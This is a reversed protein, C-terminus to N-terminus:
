SSSINDRNIFICIIGYTCSGVLGVTEKKSVVSIGEKCTVLYQLVFIKDCEFTATGGQVNFYRSIDSVVNAPFVGTLIKEGATNEVLKPARSSDGPNVAATTVTIQEEEGGVEILRKQGEILEVYATNVKDQVASSQSNTAVAFNLARQYNAWSEATYDAQAYGKANAESIARALQTKVTPVSLLRGYYLQLRHQRYAVDLAAPKPIVGTEEDPTTYEDIFRSTARSEDRYNSWTYAKYNASGFFSYNPDDYELDENSPEISNLYAELSAVGGTATAELNEVAEELAAATPEFKAANCRAAASATASNIFSAALFRTQVLAAADNMATLYAAFASADYDSAQRQASIESHFLKTLGYDKYLSITTVVTPLNTSGVKAAVTQQYKQFGYGSTGFAEEIQEDSGTYGDFVYPKFTTTGDAVLNITDPNVKVFSLDTLPKYSVTANGTSTVTMAANEYTTNNIRFALNDLDDPNTTFINVNGDRYRYNGSTGATVQKNADTDTSSICTYLRATLPSSTLEEGTETLVNYTVTVVTNMANSVRGTIKVTVSEGGSLTRVTPTSVTFKDSTISEIRIAYRSDKHLVGNADTYATNVGSSRNTIKFDVNATSQYYFDDLEFSPTKFKQETTLGLASCVIPVVAPVLTARYNYLDAFLNGVMDGLTNKTILQEFTTLGTPLFGPFVLNITRAILSLLVTKPANNLESGAPENGLLNFIPTFNLELVNGVIVDKVLSEFTVAGPFQSADFWSYNDLIVKLLKDINNWVRDNKNLTIGSVLGGWKDIVWALAQKGLEDVGIGYSLGLGPNDNLAKVGFDALINYITDVSDVPYASESSYDREPIIVAMMDKITYNAVKTLTDATEPVWVGDISSNVITRAVYSCVEMDTMANLEAPTKVEVYSAFFEDGTAALVEKGIKIINEVIKSNDGSSWNFGLDPALVVNVISGIINNLQNFFTDNTFSFTPITFNCKGDATVNFYHQYRALDDPYEAIKEELLGLWESNAKPVVYGNYVIKLADDIFDYTSGTSINTHGTLIPLKEAVLNDIFDQAMEDATVTITEPVAQDPYVVKFLMEKVMDPVSLDNIQPVFQAVLSGMDLEGKIFPVLLERSNDNLFKLLSYIVATDTSSRRRETLASIDLKSLDGLLGKFQTWLSGNLITNVSDLANDISTLDLEGVKIDEQSLVIQEKALMRDVEDLAATAYQEPTLDAKDLSDYSIADDLWEERASAVISVSSFVMIIALIMSLLKKSQKM